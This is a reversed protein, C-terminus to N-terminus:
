HNGLRRCWLVLILQCMIFASEVFIEHNYHASHPPEQDPWKPSTQKILNNKTPLAVSPRLPSNISTLLPLPILHPGECVYSWTERKDNGDDSSPMMMMGVPRNTEDDSQYKSKSIIWYKDFEFFLSVAISGMRWRWKSWTPSNVEARM